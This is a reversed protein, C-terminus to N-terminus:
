ESSWQGKFGVPRCAKKKFDFYCLVWQCLTYRSFYHCLIPYKRNEVHYMTCSCNKSAHLMFNWRSMSSGGDLAGNMNSVVLAQGDNLFGYMDLQLSYWVAPLWQQVRSGMIVNMSAGYVEKDDQRFSSLRSPDMCNRSLRNRHKKTGLLFHAIQM